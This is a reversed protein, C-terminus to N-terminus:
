HRGRAANSRARDAGKEIRRPGVMTRRSPPSCVGPPRQRRVASSSSVVNQVKNNKELTSPHLPLHGRLFRV